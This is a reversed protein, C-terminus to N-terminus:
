IELMQKQNYLIIENVGVEKSAIQLETFCDLM